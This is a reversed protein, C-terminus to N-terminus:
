TGMSPNFNILTLLIAGLHHHIQWKAHLIQASSSLVNCVTGYLTSGSRESKALWHLVSRTEDSENM